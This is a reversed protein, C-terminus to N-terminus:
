VPSAAAPAGAPRAGAGDGDRVTPRPCRRRAGRGSGPLAAAAPLPERRALPRPAAAPDLTV